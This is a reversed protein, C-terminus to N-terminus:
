ATLIFGLLLGLILGANAIHSHLGHSQPMLEDSVIYVMAGAAFALGGAVFAPSINFIILGIGAGVPTMLGAFLTFLFVKNWSIGGSRLPGAVAMGEPINHLGIAIAIYLGLEPSSELGAGIALGEPLNHLAIGFFVLYGTRLIDKNQRFSSTNEEVMSKEGSIHAHPIIKDLLFMMLAGFLFGIVTSTMTGIELAEPMLDFASIALMIGGAFGLLGSLTKGGPQGLFAVVIAGVATSVGAVFSYLLAEM